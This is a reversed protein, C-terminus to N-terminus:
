PSIKYLALSLVRGKYHLATESDFVFNIGPVLEQARQFQQDRWAASNGLVALYRRTELLNKNSSAYAESFNLMSYMYLYSSIVSIGM